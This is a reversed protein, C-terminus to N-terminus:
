YSNIDNSLASKIVNMWFHRKVVSYSLDWPKLNRQISSCVFVFLRFQLQSSPAYVTSWHLPKGKLLGDLEIINCHQFAHIPSTSHVTVIQRVTSPILLSPINRVTLLATVSCVICFPCDSSLSNFAISSHWSDSSFITLAAALCSFYCPCCYPKSSLAATVALHCPLISHYLM